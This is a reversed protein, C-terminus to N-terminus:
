RLEISRATMIIHPHPVCVRALLQESDSVGVHDAMSNTDSWVAFGDDCTVFTVIVLRTELGMGM